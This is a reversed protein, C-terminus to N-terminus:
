VWKPALIGKFCYQDVGLDKNACTEKGMVADEEIM